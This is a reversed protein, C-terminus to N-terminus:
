TIRAEATKDCYVRTVFLRRRDVVYWSLLWVNCHFQLTRSFIQHFLLCIFRIKRASRIVSPEFMVADVDADLQWPLNLCPITPVLVCCVIKINASSQVFVWTQSPMLYSVHLFTRKLRLDLMLVQFTLAMLDSSKSASPPPVLWGLLRRPCSSHYPFPAKYVLFNKGKQKPVCLDVQRIMIM